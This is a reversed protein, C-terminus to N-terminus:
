FLDDLLNEIRVVQKDWSYPEAAQRRILQLESSSPERLSQLIATTFEEASEALYILKQERCLYPLPTAVVPKGMALFEYLKLPSVERTYENIRYPVLCVDFQAVFEPVRQHPLAPLLNVNPLSTLPSLDVLHPRLFGALVFTVHALHQAAHQLMPVDLRNDLTGVLGVIPKPLGRLEPPCSVDTDPRFLDTDVGGAIIELRQSHPRLNEALGTTRTLVLDVKRCLTEEMAIIQRPSVLPYGSARFNDICHYVSIKEGFAGVVQHSNAWYTWFIDAQWGLRGLIRRIALKLIRQSFPNTWPHYFIPLVPPPTYVQLTALDALPRRLGGALWRRLQIFTKQRDSILSHLARPQEVYLVRNHRALRQAIQQRSGFQPADWDTTSFIVLTKQKM